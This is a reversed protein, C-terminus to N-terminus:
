GGSKLAKLYERILREKPTGLFSRVDMLIDNESPTETPKKERKGACLAVFDLGLADAFKRASKSKRDFGDNKLNWLTAQSPGAKDCLEKESAFPNEEEVAIRLANAAKLKPGVVKKTKEMPDITELSELLWGAVIGAPLAPDRKGYQGQRASTLNTM